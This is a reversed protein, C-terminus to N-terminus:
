IFRRRIAYCITLNLDFTQVILIRAQVREGRRAEAKEKAAKPLWDWHEENVEWRWVCLAAPIKGGSSSSDLGYNVRTATSKIAFEVADVPLMVASASSKNGAEEDDDDSPVLQKHM